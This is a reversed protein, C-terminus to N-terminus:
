LLQNTSKERHSQLPVLNDPCIFYKPCQGLEIANKVITSKGSGNPGAFVFLQKSKM